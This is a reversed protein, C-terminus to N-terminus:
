VLFFRTRALMSTGADAEFFLMNVLKNNNNNNNNDNNNNNNNDNNNNNNNNEERPIEEVGSNKAGTDQLWRDSNQLHTSTLVVVVWETAKIVRFGWGTSKNTSEKQKMTEPSANAPSMLIGISGRLLVSCFVRTAWRCVAATLACREAAYLCFTDYMCSSGLFLLPLLPLQKWLYVPVHM